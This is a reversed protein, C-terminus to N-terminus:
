RTASQFVSATAAVAVAVAVGAVGPVVGAGAGVAVGPVVGPGGAFVVAGAGAGVAVVGAVAAAGAAPAAAPSPYALRPFEEIIFGTHFFSRSKWVTSWLIWRFKTKGQVSETQGGGGRRWIGLSSLWM